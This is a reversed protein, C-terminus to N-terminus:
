FLSNRTNRIKEGIRHYFAPSSLYGFHALHVPLNSEFCEDDAGDFIPATTYSLIDHPDWVNYWHGVNSHPLTVKHPARTAPDSRKFLKMEEFLSVQSGASVWFDIKINSYKASHPIYYTACDYVIQGGMSHSLVVLPEAPQMQAAGVLVDLFDTIIPGPADADGRKSLYVFVDGIFNTMIADIAPRYRLFMNTAFASLQDSASRLARKTLDSVPLLSASSREDAALGRRPKGSRAITALLQGAQTAIHDLLAADIRSPVGIPLAHRVASDLATARSAYDGDTLGIQKLAASLVSSLQDASLSWVMPTDANAAADTRPQTVEHQKLMHIALAPVREQSNLDAESRVPVSAHNWAFNVADGGWQAAFVQVRDADKPDPTLAPAVYHQLFSTIMPVDSQDRIAVGHLYV